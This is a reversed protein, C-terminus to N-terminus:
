TKQCGCKRSDAYNQEPAAPMAFHAPRNPGSPVTVLYARSAADLAQKVLLRKTSISRIAVIQVTQDRRLTPLLEYRFHRGRRFDGLM